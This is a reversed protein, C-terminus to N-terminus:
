ASHTEAAKPSSELCFPPLLGSIPCQSHAHFYGDHSCHQCLAGLAETVVAVSYTNLLLAPWAGDMCADIWGDM